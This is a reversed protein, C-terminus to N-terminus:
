NLHKWDNDWYWEGATSQSTGDLTWAVSDFTGSTVLSPLQFSGKGNFDVIIVYKDADVPNPYVMAGLLDGGQLNQDGLSMGAQDLTFPVQNRIRTLLPNKGIKGVLILNFNKITEPTVDKDLTVPGNSRSASLWTGSIQTALEASQKQEWSNGGTGQVVLFPGAFANSIPGEVQHSRFQGASATSAGDADISFPQSRTVRITQNIGNITVSIKSDGFQKEPFESPLFTLQAVNEAHAVIKGPSVLQAQVSGPQMPDELRDVRLWYAKNYKLQNVSFDVEDPPTSLTKGEFFDLAIRYPEIAELSSGDGPVIVMDPHIGVKDCESKFETGQEKPSHPDFDGYILRVPVHKLNQVFRLSNNADPWYSGDEASMGTAARFASVAAFRDPFREALLLANRASACEGLLYLRSEDIPFRKETDDIAELMDTTALSAEDQQLGRAYPLLIAYGHQDAFYAITQLRGADPPGDLFTMDPHTTPCLVVLPIQKEHHGAPFYFYYYQLQGDVKSRFSLLRFRHEGPNAPTEPTIGGLEWAFQSLAGFMGNNLGQNPQAITKLLSPVAPCLDSEATIEPLHGCRVNRYQTVLDEPKGLYFDESLAQTGFSLHATYLGAPLAPLDVKPQPQALDVHSTYAIKGHIDIVDMKAPGGAVPAYFSLNTSIPLPSGQPILMSDLIDIVRGHEDILQNAGSPTAVRFAFDNRKPFCFMKLLVLNRGKHLHVRKVSLTPWSYGLVGAPSQYVVQSNLWLKIPSNGAVVFAMDADRDSYLAAAAYTMKFVEFSKWYISRARVTATPFRVIQDLFQGTATGPIKDVNANTSDRVLDLSVKTTPRRLRLPEESGGINALYDKALAATEIPATFAQQDAPLPFGGMIRWSTIATFPQGTQIRTIPLSPHSDRWLLFVALGAVFLCIGLFAAGLSKWHKGAMMSDREFAKM